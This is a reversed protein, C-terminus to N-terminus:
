REMRGDYREVEMRQGVRRETDGEDREILM